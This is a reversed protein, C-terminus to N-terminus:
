TQRLAVNPDVRAARSAPLYCALFAAALFPLPVVLMVTMDIAPLGGRFAPRAAMDVLDAFAFGVVLGEVVPRIGDGIVLRMVQRPLAGLALRVGMEQTRRAVSYSLVGYLGVMALMLAVAGLTGSLGVMIAIAMNETGGLATGAGSDVIGLEPEVRRMMVKLAALADAPKKSTRAVLAVYPEYCQAFPVYAVLEPREGSRARGPEATVGIVTLPGPDNAAEDASTKRWLLSRGVVDRTGFIQEAASQSLVIVATRDREDSADFPRGAAMAVGLTKFVSPTAAILRLRRGYYKPRDFPRDTPTVFAALRGANGIPLGSSVAVAEIGPQRAAAEVIRDLAVRARDESWGQNAFDLRVLGLRDLDVPAELRGTEAIQRLGLTAMAVLAVSVAVQAAILIRRGLWRPSVTHAGGSGALRRLDTRALHLAPVLGFVLLALVTSGAAVLLVSANFDPVSSIQLGQGVQVTTSLLYLMMARGVALSALGGLIAVVASEVVQERVLEWRSAGLAVRVALDRRRTTGRALTLNALTTCAVMLVLGVAVLTLLSLRRAVPDIQENVLRDSARAVTWSRRADPPSRFRLPIDRGIPQAQDLQRGVGAVATEAEEVTRGPALRAKALLWRDERDDPRAPKGVLAVASVPLWVDTPKLNPLFLGRFRAPAVGVIEFTNGRIKLTKGVVDPEAAFRHQWLDESIVAVAAANPQDDAPQLMRGLRPPIRLMQFYGDTVLEGLGQGGSGNAVISLPLPHYAAVDSFVTQGARLDRLDPSSLALHRLSGGSRDPDSHYISVLRDLESVDLPKFVTAYIVSYIATTAGISLALTLVAFLTAGPNARLRRQAFVLDRWLRDTGAACASVLRRLDVDRTARGAAQDVPSATGSADDVVTSGFLTAIARGGPRPQDRSAATAEDAAVSQRLAWGDLGLVLADGTPEDFVPMQDHRCRSSQSRVFRAVIVCFLGVWVFFLGTREILMQELGPTAYVLLVYDLFYLALRLRMVARGPVFASVFPVKEYGTFVVELLVLAAVVGFALHVLAAYWGWVMVHIPLLLVLLPLVTLFFIASRTGALYSNRAPTALFRFVWAADLEAPITAAIRIGVVLFFILNLQAALAMYRLNLPMGRGLNLGSYAAAMTAGAVAFGLGLSMAVYLRHRPSRALTRATFLFTARARGDTVLRAALRDLVLAIARASRSAAAGAVTGVRHVQSVLALLHVAGTAVLSLALGVLGARALGAYIAEHRGILVQELGLFWLPPWLYPSPVGTSLVTRTKGALIPIALLLSLLLLVLLFQVPALVGRALRAPLVQSVLGHLASITLFVFACGALGAVGHAGMWLVTEGLGVRTKLLVVIPLLLAPLANLAVAVIAAAGAVALAKASLVAAPRVPLPSFIAFDRTDLTLSDWFMVTLLAMVIMVGGLLLTQDDLALSLKEALPLFAAPGKTGPIWVDISNYKGLFLLAVAATGVLFVALLAAITVHLDEDPAILDNDALGSWFHRTLRGFKSAPEAM